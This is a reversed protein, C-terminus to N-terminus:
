PGRYIMVPPPEETDLDRGFVVKRDFGPYNARVRQFRQQALALKAQADKAELRALEEAAVFLVLMLHDLDCPNTLLSRVNRQGFIRLTQPYSSPVPWVEIQQSYLGTGEDLQECFEYRRIPDTTNAGATDSDYLNYEGSSIGYQMDVWLDTWRSKVCLPREVNITCPESRTDTEPLTTYRSSVTVDWERSLFPWDFEAAFWQQKTELLQSYLADNATVGNELSVRIEAKLARLLDALLVNRM